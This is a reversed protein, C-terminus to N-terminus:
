LVDVGALGFACQHPRLSKFGWSKRRQFRFGTRRGTGGRGRVFYTKAKGGIVKLGVVGAFGARDSAGAGFPALRGATILLRGACLAPSGSDYAPVTGFVIRLDSRRPLDEPASVAPPLAARLRVLWAAARGRNGFGASCPFHGRTALRHRIHLLRRNRGAAARHSQFVHCFYSKEARRRRLPSSTSDIFPDLTERRPFKTLPHSKIYIVFSSRLDHM